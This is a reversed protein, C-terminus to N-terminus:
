RRFLRMTGAGAVLFAGLSFLLPLESGTKPLAAPAEEAPAPAPEAVAVLIPADAPPAPPAPPMKGTLKRQQDVLTAPEEVIKTATVVMGKKLGWADTEQGNVTFKQGKPIKFKQNEGNELTLIVTNPAQIYWVKGTVTQVTKIVQPTTTTTITRQLIMGPKADRIGIEKGDVMARASDPVNAIHRISGDAMKLVLDNGSVTLIEASEVQVEHTPTGSSTSKKTQVQAFMMAAFAIVTIFLFLKMISKM